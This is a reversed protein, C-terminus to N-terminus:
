EEMTFTTSQTLEDALVALAFQTENDLPISNVIHGCVIGQENLLPSQPPLREQSKIKVRYTHYKSQGRYHLRAIIEQGVYCGKDFHIAGLTDLNLRQAVFAESNEPQLIPIGAQILEADTYPADM